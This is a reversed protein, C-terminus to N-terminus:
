RKKKDDISRTAASKSVKRIGYKIDVSRRMSQNIRELLLEALLYGIACAILSGPPGSWFKVMCALAVVTTLAFVLGCFMDVRGLEAFYAQTFDPNDWPDHRRRDTEMFFKERM